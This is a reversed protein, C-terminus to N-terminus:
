TLLKMEREYGLKQESGLFYKFDRTRKEISM